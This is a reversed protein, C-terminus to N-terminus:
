FDHLEGGGDSKEGKSERDRGVAASTCGIKAFIDRHTVSSTTARQTERGQRASPYISSPTNLNHGIRFCLIASGADAVDLQARDIPRSIPLKSIQYLCDPILFTIKKLSQNVLKISNYMRLKYVHLKLKINHYKKVDHARFMEVLWLLCCNSHRPFSVTLLCYGTHFLWM